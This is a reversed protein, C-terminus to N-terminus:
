RIPLLASAGVVDLTASAFPVKVIGDNIEIMASAHPQFVDRVYDSRHDIERGQADRYSTEYLVDRYAVCDSTERGM